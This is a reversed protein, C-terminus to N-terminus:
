AELSAKFTPYHQQVLRYLRTEEPQHREYSSSPSATAKWALSMLM